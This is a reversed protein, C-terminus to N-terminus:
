CYRRSPDPPSEGLITDFMMYLIALTNMIHYEIGRKFAKGTYIARVVAPTYISTEIAVTDLCSGETYKALAFLAAMCIHLEGARLVWNSNGTSQQLKIAREYLDLDLTIVTRREPGVVFASIDQTLMLVTYLTACDNPSQKFLHVIVENNTKKLQTKKVSYILSNTAACTPMVVEKDARLSRRREKSLELISCGDSTSPGCMQQGDESPIQTPPLSIDGLSNEQITDPKDLKINGLHNALAWTRDKQQYVALLDAGENINYTDFKVPKPFIVPEDRYVVDICVPWPKDPIALTDNVHEGDENEEQNILVLTGHLTNQGYATDELFDINDVAFYISM